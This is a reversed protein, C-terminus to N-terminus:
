ETTTWLIFSHKSALPCHLLIVLWSKFPFHPVATGQLFVNPMKEIGVCESRFWLWNYTLRGGPYSTVGLWWNKSAKKKKKQCSAASSWLIGKILCQENAAGNTEAQSSNIVKSILRWCFELSSTTQQSLTLPNPGLSSQLSDKTRQTRTPKFFFFPISNKSLCTSGSLLCYVIVDIYM